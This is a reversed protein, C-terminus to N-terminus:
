FPQDDTAHVPGMALSQWLASHRLRPGVKKGDRVRRRILSTGSSLLHLTVVTGPVTPADVLRVALGHGAGRDSVRPWLALFFTRERSENIFIKNICPHARPVTFGAEQSM